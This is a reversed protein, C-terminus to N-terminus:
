FGVEDNLEESLSPKEIQKPATASPAPAGSRTVWGVIWYEPKPKNENFRKNFYTSNKIQIIPVLGEQRKPHLRWRGLLASVSNMAVSGRAVLVYLEGGADNRAMPVAFQEKWPDEHAKGNMTGPPWLSEDNDGLDSREVTKATADIQVMVTDPPGDANFKIFGRQTQFLYAIFQTGDPVEVDDDLTRHIGTSGNFSFLRGGAGGWEALHQDLAEESTTPVPATTTMLEKKTEMIPQEKIPQNPPKPKKSM